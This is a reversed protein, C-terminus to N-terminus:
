MLISNYVTNEGNQKILAAVAALWKGCLRFPGNAILPFNDKSNEASPAFIKCLLKVYWFCKHAETIPPPKM